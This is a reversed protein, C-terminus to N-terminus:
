AKPTEDELEKADPKLTIIKEDLVEKADDGDGTTKKRAMHKAHDKNFFHSGNELVYVEKLDPRAKFTDRIGAKDAINTAM